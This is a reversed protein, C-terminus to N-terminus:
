KKKWFKWWKQKTAAIQKKIELSERLVLMLNKDRESQRQEQQDLRELVKQNFEQRNKIFNILQKQPEQLSIDPKSLSLKLRYLEAIHKVSEDLSKGTNKM